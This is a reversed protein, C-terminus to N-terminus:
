ITPREPVPLKGMAMAGGSWKSAIFFINCFKFFFKQQKQGTKHLHLNTFENWQYFM